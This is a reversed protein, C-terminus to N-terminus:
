ISFSNLEDIGSFGYEQAVANSKKQTNFNNSVSSNSVRDKTMIETEQFNLSLTTQIPYGDNFAAWGNPAYDVNVSTLVCESVTMIKAEQGSSIKDTPDSTTLSGLGLNNLAASFVNSISSAIGNQGLFIFKIKFLQPPTLYQGPQSGLMSSGIGPVSYYTFTDIIDKTTKAEQPSKPTFTFSLSFDRLSLGKYILQIQPNVYIGLANRLVDTAGGGIAGPIKNAISGLVRSTFDKGLASRPLFNAIESADKGKLDAYASAALGGYGLVDTMSIDSYNASHNISLTDPMYLSIRALDSGKQKPRYFPAQFPAAAAPALKSIANGATNLGQSGQKVAFDALSGNKVADVAGTAKEKIGDTTQNLFNAGDAATKALDFNQAFDGAGTIGRNVSEEFGTTYDYISFQIAHCMAPNSALDSPYVLNRPTSPNYLSKLPGSIQNLVSGGGLIKSLTQFGMTNEKYNIYM